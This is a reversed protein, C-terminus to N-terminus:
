KKYLKSVVDRCFVDQRAILDALQKSDMFDMNMGAKAHAEICDKDAM